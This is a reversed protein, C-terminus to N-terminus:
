CTLRLRRPQSVAKWARLRRSSSRQSRNPPASMAPCRRVSVIQGSTRGLSVAALMALWTRSTEAPMRLRREAM